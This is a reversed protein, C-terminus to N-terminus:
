ASTVRRYSVLPFTLPWAAPLTSNTSGNVYSGAVKKLSGTARKLLSGPKKWRTSLNTRTYCGKKPHQWRLLTEFGLVQQTALDIQPQYHLVFQQDLIARRLDNELELEELGNKSMVYDFHIYRNRGLSKAKYMAIDANRMLEQSTAGDRPATVIGISASVTLQTTDIKIPARLTAMINEAVISSDEVTSLTNLIICFEDGGLRAIIDTNRVCHRLRQAVVKLLQDGAHHGMSDNIRKFNDLDIFMLSFPHKELNDRDLELNLYQKFARRNSLDTLSDFMAMNHLNAAKQELESHLKELQVCVNEEIENLTDIEDKVKRQSRNNELQQLAESFNGTTLKPLINALQRLQSIPRWLLFFMLGCALMIGSLATIFMYTQTTKILAISEEINTIVIFHTQQDPKTVIDEAIPTLTIEYTANNFTIQRSGGLSEEFSFNNALQLMIGATTDSNTISRISQKWRPLNFIATNTEDTPTLLGIDTNAIKMFDILLDATSIELQIYFIQGSTNMVPASIIQSCSNSCQIKWSPSGDIFLPLNEPSRDSSWLGIGQEDFLILREINWNIQLNSWINQLSFIFQEASDNQAPNETLASITPLMDILQLNQRYSQTLVEQLQKRLKQHSQQQQTYRLRELNSANLYLLSSSLPILITLVLIIVKWKLSLYM